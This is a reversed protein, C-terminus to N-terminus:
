AIGGSSCAGPRLLGGLPRPVTVMRCSFVAVMASKRPSVFSPIRISPLTCQPFRYRSGEECDCAHKRGPGLLRRKGQRGHCPQRYHLREARRLSVALRHMGHRFRRRLPQAPGPLQDLHSGVPTRHALAEAVGLQVGIDGVGDPEPGVVVQVRSDGRPPPISTEKPM